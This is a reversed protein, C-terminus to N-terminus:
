CARIVSQEFDESSEQLVQWNTPSKGLVEISKMSPFEKRLSAHHEISTAIWVGNISPHDSRKRLILYIKGGIYIAHCGFMPKIIYEKPYLCELVFPFPMPRKGKTRKKTAITRM